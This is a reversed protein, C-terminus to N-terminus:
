TGFITCTDLKCARLGLFLEAVSFQTHAMSSMMNNPSSTAMFGDDIFCPVCEILELVCAM